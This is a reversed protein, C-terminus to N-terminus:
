PFRRSASSVLGRVALPQSGFANDNDRRRAGLVLRLGQGGPGARLICQGCEGCGAWVPAQHRHAKPEKLHGPRFRTRQIAAKSSPAQGLWHMSGASRPSDRQQLQHLEQAGDRGHEEWGPSLAFQLCASGWAVSGPMGKDCRSPFGM